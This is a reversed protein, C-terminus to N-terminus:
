ICTPEREVDAQTPRNWWRNQDALKQFPIEIVELRHVQAGPPARTQYAMRRRLPLQQHAM